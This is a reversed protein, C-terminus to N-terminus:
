RRAQSHNVFIPSSWARERAPALCDDDLPTRHDGYCPEVSVPAGNEDFKTRLNGANIADTPEQLARAYYLADRRDADFDGDRFHAVCGDPSAGCHVVKWPDEILGEAPEGPYAQPRIRVIEITEIAHRRDGPHYCEGACLAELREPDLREHSFPACGPKQVFSGLARVEFRPKVSMETESGMSLRGQPANVLDFWLLIRPGSTGYVEKRKLAAWVAQRNRATAHVGMVGGPYTFSAGREADPLTWESRVPQPRMPDEVEVPFRAPIRKLASGSAFTMMRRQYQKYGTGPRATHDDTAALMGFRFRLPRGDPQRADFNSLSLAYQTSETPNYGFAPKFCDECQGCNLWEAAEADPFVHVYSAGAELALRKAQGIRADCEASPLEGCRSRMIEGAQHCCPLYDASPALCAAGAGDLPAGARWARYEESNGHGSMVEILGQREPDHQRADLAKDWSALPPTYLGWANGHPIVLADFGWEDLKAFLEAPTPANEHCDLPLEPSPVGRPCQPISRVRDLLWELDKYRKWHLPDLWRAQAAQEVSNFIGIGGGYPRASIPRAPLREDELDPFIVNKHGWHTEPTQGIQTWEWGAFPIVDPDDDHGSVAACQRLSEKAARWHEPTFNEAHDTLSYFDLSACYRAFDCADAPTHIGQLGMFPLEVTFADVSYTTHVHLDGFLIRKQANFGASQGARAALRRLGERQRELAKARVEAPVRDADVVGAPQDAGSCSCGALASLAGALAAGRAIGAAANM